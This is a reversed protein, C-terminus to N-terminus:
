RLAAIAANLNGTSLSAFPPAPLTIHDGDSTTIFRGEATHKSAQKCLCSRASMTAGVLASASTATPTPAKEHTLQGAETASCVRWTSGQSM